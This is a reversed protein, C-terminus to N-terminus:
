PWEGIRSYKLIGADACHVENKAQNYPTKLVLKWLHKFSM